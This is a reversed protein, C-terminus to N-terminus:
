MILMLQRFIFVSIILFFIATILKIYKLNDVFKTSIEIVQVGKYMLFLSVSLPLVFSLNYMILLFKAYMDSSDLSIVYTITPLYVQGTCFFELISVLFGLIFSTLYIFKKNSIKRITNHIFHKLKKPLQNKVEGMKGRKINVYDMFNFVFIGFSLIITVIYIGKIINEANKLSIGVKFLGLGVLLYALFTALIFPLGAKLIDKSNEKSTYVFSVFFLLMSFACPNFGDLFGALMVTIIPIKKIREKVDTNDELEDLGTFIELEDNKLQDITDLDYYQKKTFLVPAVGQERSPMDYSKSYKYLLKLNDGDNINLTIYEIDYKELENMMEMCSSCGTTVFLIAQNKDSMQKNAQSASVVGTNLIMISILLLVILNKKKTM